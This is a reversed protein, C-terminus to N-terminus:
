FKETEIVKRFAPAMTTAPPTFALSLPLPRLLSLPAPLHRRHHPAAPATPRPHLPPSSVDSSGELEWRGMEGRRAAAEATVDGEPAATGNRWEQGKAASCGPM